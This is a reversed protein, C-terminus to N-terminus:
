FERGFTWEIYINLWIRATVYKCWTYTVGWVSQSRSDEQEGCTVDAVNIMALHNQYISPTESIDLTSRSGRWSSLVLSHLVAFRQDTPVHPHLVRPAARAPLVQPAARPTVLAHRSPVRLRHRHHRAPARDRFHHRRGQEPIEEPGGDSFGRRL